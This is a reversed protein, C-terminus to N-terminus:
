LLKILSSNKGETSPLPNKEETKVHHLAQPSAKAIDGLLANDLKTATTAM